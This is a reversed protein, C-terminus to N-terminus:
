RQAELDDLGREILLLIMNHVSRREREAQVRLRALLPDPFRVNMATIDPTSM